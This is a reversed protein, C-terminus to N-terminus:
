VTLHRNGAATEVMEILKPADIPKNIFDDMGAALCRERDGKMTHATLALIPTRAGKKREAARIAATAALGDMRPMQVDMLIVHFSTKLAHEVAEAGDGALTVTHGRKELLRTVLKQNVANDEALLIQLPTVPFPRNTGVATLMNGLSVTDTPRNSQGAYSETFEATFLFRSGRGPESEVSISGGMLDVLRTSIALGLGTGGYKRTTSGDAQRFAEFILQRKEAPIGIGTDYVVFQLKVRRDQRRSSTGPKVSDLHVTLGVKGKDTFKIANGLLNTLVQRLRHPDGVLRDPVGEDVSLDLALNKKEASFQLMKATDGICQRLSFEILNLDLRGAEIKSFDLIDNLLELLSHASLRATDLYERQEESLQTGLALETMGIVGNMPTRIEHSMNALFESKLRSAQQAEKLLREIERNQRQVTANERETKAKEDLVRQKEQSLQRTRESVAIELRMRDGELHLSRRKWILAGLGLSLLSAFIRFWWSIWWPGLVRFSLRAPEVSWLGQANRAEVELTYQGASLNPFNLEREATDEWERTMNVLRYRFLVASEQVFTLAAFRVQLSNQDHPVDSLSNLDMLKGGAKVSTVVVTPPVNPPAVAAPRYRSLGRSTGIWLSGDVDAFFANTNCDDWILGDSHSYHRWMEHDFVDAGHDTGVWLREREDLGLFLTKDSHLGNSTNFHEVQLADDSIPLSVKSIGEAERYGVWLWGNPDEAMHAILNSKLGDRKTYRKWQGSFWRALGMDGAAWVNGAEDQLTKQFAEDATTGPPTQRAFPVKAGFPVPKTSRFLGSGTSVWVLGDRDVMVSRVAVSPLGDIEGLLRVKGSGPQFQRLGGPEAGIWLSGDPNAALARVMEVGPLAAQRWVVRGNAAEGGKEEAYNLGFQTGVWLRGHTDRVISWISERSLGENTNWSQWENYGQWRALGSGLLGLWISGERDQIVASIDNTTLGHQADVVEWGTATQRALGKDTAVLLWGTPDLTLAPYTNKSEAPGPQYQFRRADASWRYLATASRVWVNGDLDGVIAEWRDQPLGAEASLARAQDNVLRCLSLGCGYWIVGSADTYVSAVENSGGRQPPPQLSFKMGDPTEVGTVLGRETAFYLRGTRDSAIGQRGTIGRAVRLEVPEFQDDKARALGADTAVWLEGKATEHLAEVRTGIIGEAKSFRTFRSGDYRYLGNQTGVWLFGSRDQLVTQVALNQLGEEEGYFKFNYRQAWVSSACALAAILVVGPRAM